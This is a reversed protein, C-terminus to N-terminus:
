LKEFLKDIRMNLHFFLMLILMVLSGYIALTAEYTVYSGTFFVDLLIRLICLVITIISSTYVLNIRHSYIKFFVRTTLSLERQNKSKILGNALIEQFKKELIRFSIILFTSIGIGMIVFLMVLDKITTM